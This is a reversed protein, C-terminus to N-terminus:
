ASGYAQGSPPAEDAWGGRKANSREVATTWFDSNNALLKINFSSSARFELVEVGEPGPTYAYPVNAGVYFGDGTALEETGIRLNGAVVYYLCDVDHAHRPLPFGSKFWARTLSMGPMAFLLQVTTGELIGADIAAISGATEVETPPVTSMLGSNDFDAADKARFLAFRPDFDHFASM